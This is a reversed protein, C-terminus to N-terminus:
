ANARNHGKWTLFNIAYSSQGGTRLLACSLDEMTMTSKLKTVDLQFERRGDAGRRTLFHLTDPLVNPVHISLWRHRDKEPFIWRGLSDPNVSTVHGARYRQRDLYPDTLHREGVLLVHLYAM